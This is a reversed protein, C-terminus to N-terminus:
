FDFAPTPFPGQRKVKQQKKLYYIDGTLLVRHWMSGGLLVRKMNQDDLFVDMMRLKKGFKEVLPKCWDHDV